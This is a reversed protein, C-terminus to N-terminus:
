NIKDKFKLFEKSLVVNEKQYQPEYPCHRCKNGCCKGREGLYLSTFIIKGGELYYHIGEIFEKSM